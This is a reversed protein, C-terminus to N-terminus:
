SSLGLESTGLNELANFSILIVPVRNVVIIWIKAFPNKREEHFLMVSSFTYGGGGGPRGRRARGEGEGKRRRVDNGERESERSNRREEKLVRRKQKEKRKRELGRRMEKKM